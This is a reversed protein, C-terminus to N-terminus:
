KFNLSNSMKFILPCMTGGEWPQYPEIEAIYISDDISYKSNCNSSVWDKFEALYTKVM